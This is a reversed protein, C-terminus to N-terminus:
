GRWRLAGIGFGDQDPDSVFEKWDSHKAKLEAWFKPVGGSDSPTELGFRQRADPVIDHFAIVGGERVLQSYNEFDSKVGVYSHDGDIFLLDLLENGLAEGVQLFIERSQSNGHISALTQTPAVLRRYVAPRCPDDDWDISVLNADPKAAMSLLLLNGGRASGIELIRRIPADGAWRLFPVIEDDRQGACFELRSDCVAAAAEPLTKGILACRFASAREAALRIRFRSRLWKPALRRLQM